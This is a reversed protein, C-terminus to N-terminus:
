NWFDEPVTNFRNLNESRNAGRPGFFALTIAGAFATNARPGTPAALQAQLAPEAPRGMTKREHVKFFSKAKRLRAEGGRWMLEVDYRVQWRFHAVYRLAGGPDQATFITWFDRDDIFQFLFNHVNSRASNRLKLPVRSAPHDGWSSHVSPPVFSSLTPDQFFPIPPSGTADLMVASALAPPNHALVGISGEQPIRGAYFAGYFNARGFQVFGFNTGAPDGAIPVHAGATLASGQDRPFTTANFGQTLHCIIHGVPNIHVDPKANDDGVPLKLQADLIKVPM